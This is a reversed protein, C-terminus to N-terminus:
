RPRLAGRHGRARGEMEGLLIILPLLALMPCYDATASGCITRSCSLLRTDHRDALSLVAWLIADPADADATDINPSVGQRETHRNDEIAQQSVEDLPPRLKVRSAASEAHCSFLRTNQLSSPARADIVGQHAASTVPRSMLVVTASATTVTALAATTM